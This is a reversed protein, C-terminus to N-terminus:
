VEWFNSYHISIDCGFLVAPKGNKIMTFFDGGVSFEATRIVSFSGAM